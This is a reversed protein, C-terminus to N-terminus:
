NQWDKEFNNRYKKKLDLSEKLIDFTERTRVLPSVLVIDFKENKLKEASEEVQEKGKKTLHDSKEERSSVVGHMGAKVNSEAEGHRM